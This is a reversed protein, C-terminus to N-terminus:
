SQSLEGEKDSVELPLRKFPGNARPGTMKIAGERQSYGALRGGIHWQPLCLLLQALHPRVHVKTGQFRGILRAINGEMLTLDVIMSPTDLADLPDGVQPHYMVMSEEMRTKFM